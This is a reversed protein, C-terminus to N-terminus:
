VRYFIHIPATNNKEMLPDRIQYKIYERHIHQFSLYM